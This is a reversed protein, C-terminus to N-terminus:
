ASFFPMHGVGICFHLVCVAFVNSEFSGTKSWDCVFSVLSNFFATDHLVTSPVDSCPRMSDQLICVALGNSEFSGTKSWVCVSPELSDFFASRCFKQPCSRALVNRISCLVNLSSIQNLVAQKPDFM